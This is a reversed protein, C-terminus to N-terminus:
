FLHRILVAATTATAVTAVSVVMLIALATAFMMVLMIVFAATPMMMVVFLRCNQSFDSFPVINRVRKQQYLLSNVFYTNRLRPFKRVKASPYTLM